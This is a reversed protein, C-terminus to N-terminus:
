QHQYGPETAFGAAAIQAFKFDWQCGSLHLGYSRLEGFPAECERFLLNAQLALTALNHDLVFM